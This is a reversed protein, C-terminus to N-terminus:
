IFMDKQNNLKETRDKKLKRSLIEAVIFIILIGLAGAIEYM